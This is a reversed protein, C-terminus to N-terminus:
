EDKGNTLGAGTMAAATFIDAETYSPETHVGATNVRLVAQGEFLYEETQALESLAKATDELRNESNKLSHVDLLAMVAKHNKAGAESLQARLMEEFDRQEMQQTHEQKQTELQEFLSQREAQLSKVDVGEFSKLADQAQRLQEQLEEHQRSQVLIKAKQAEIGRGHEAMVAEVAEKQLGLSEM